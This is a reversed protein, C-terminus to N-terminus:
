NRGHLKQQNLAKQSFADRANKEELDSENCLSYFTEEADDENGAASGVGRSINFPLALLLYNHQNVLLLHMEYMGASTVNTGEIPWLVKFETQLILNRSPIPIGTVEGHIHTSISLPHFSIGVHLVHLRGPEM